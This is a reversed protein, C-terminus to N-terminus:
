GQAEDLLVALPGNNAAHELLETGPSRGQEVLTALREIEPRM